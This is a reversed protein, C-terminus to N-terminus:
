RWTRCLAKRQIHGLVVGPGRRAVRFADDAARGHHLHAALDVDERRRRKRCTEVGQGAVRAGVQHQVQTGQGEDVAASKAQQAPRPVPRQGPLTPQPQDGFAVAEQADQATPAQDAWTLPVVTALLSALMLEKFLM